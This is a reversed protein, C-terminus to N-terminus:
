AATSLTRDLIQSDVMGTEKRIVELAAATTLPGNPKNKSICITVWRETSNLALALLTKTRKNDIRQIARKTLKM